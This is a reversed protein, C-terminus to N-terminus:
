EVREQDKENKLNSLIWLLQQKKFNESYSSLFNDMFSEYICTVHFMWSNHFSYVFMKIGGYQDYQIYLYIDIHIHICAHMVYFIKVWM